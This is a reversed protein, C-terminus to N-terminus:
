VLGLAVEQWTRQLYRLAPRLVWCTHEGPHVWHQPHHSHTCYDGAPAEVM